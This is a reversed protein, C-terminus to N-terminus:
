CVYDLARECIKGTLRILYLISQSTWRLRSRATSISHYVSSKETHCACAACVSASAVSMSLWRPGTAPRFCGSLAPTTHYRDIDCSRVCVPLFHASINANILFLGSFSGHLCETLASGLSLPDTTPQNDKSLRVSTYVGSGM